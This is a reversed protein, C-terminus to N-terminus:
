DKLLMQDANADISISNLMSMVDNRLTENANQPVTVKLEVFTRSRPVFYLTSETDPTRNSGSAIAVSFAAADKGCISAVHSAVTIRMANARTFSEERTRAVDLASRGRGSQHERFRVEVIAVSDAIEKKLTVIRGDDYAKLLESLQGDSLQKLPVRLKASDVVTWGNRAILEIGYQTNRYREDSLVSCSVLISIFISVSFQIM